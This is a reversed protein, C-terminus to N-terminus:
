GLLRRQRAPKQLAKRFVGVLEVHPSFLFQDVPTVLELAYGGAILIKADRAFTQPNCSVGVLTAVASRALERAQAEAGARPPDFVVADFSALEGALLPRDFLDRREGKIQRLGPTERAGRLCAALAGADSEACFVEAKEALRLAFAGLGCFLDATKKAGGVADLVLRALTEEGAATAQLFAGPPPAVRARGISIRPARRETLVLGHNSIRALDLNQAAAILTQELPFDLQGCGRLDLDLGNLSATVVLDLPKDLSKLIEAVRRAALLAAAMEPALIPCADLEFIRHSRAQMFGVHPEGRQDNRSHFTARRRGAGWAAVLPAVEADVGANRLADAVLGGKWARYAPEALTQVACGGCQTFHPCLAAVRNPSPTLM